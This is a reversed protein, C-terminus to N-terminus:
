IGLSSPAPSSRRSEAAMRKMVAPRKQLPMNDRTLQRSESAKKQPAPTITAVEADSDLSAKLAVLDPNDPQIGLGRDLYRGARAMENADIAKRALTIYIEVIEQIGARATENKADLQLAAAMYEYANDGEPTVLRYENLAQRGLALLTEVDGSHTGAQQTVPATIAQQTVAAATVQQPRERSGDDRIIVGVPPQYDSDIPADAVTETSIDVAPAPVPDVVPSAGPPVRGTDGAESMVVTDAPDEVLRGTLAVLSQKWRPLADGLSLMEEVRDHGPMSPVTAVATVLAVLAAATVGLVRALSFRTLATDSIATDPQQVATQEDNEALLPQPAIDVPVVVDLDPSATDDNSVPPTDHRGIHAEKNQAAMRSGESLAIAVSDMNDARISLDTTSLQGDRVSTMSTVNDADYQPQDIHLPALQEHHMEASIEKVDKENIAHSGKGFGLLLLRNCIKNIHRPVGKSLQYIGTVAASSFEPDGQWGAQLLRHEIYSRTDKLNLPVLKYNAIVRQQFQEMEPSRMLEQLSDQGVLFLQLMLRSQTQLDALIRLEELAAHSLTQAEDIILLVRRGMQEQEIFYQQIRYRLTGKDMGAADIGYAYAVARLLDAAGYNSVAIRRAAVESANIGKLFTEILMTKGTGPRGTVMVFGEGQALAFELYERACRYGTHSFCFDPEPALRFPNTVLQYFRKYM